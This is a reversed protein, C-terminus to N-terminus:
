LSTRKQLVEHFPRLLSFCEWALNKVSSRRQPGVAAEHADADMLEKRLKDMSGQRQISSDRKERKKKM